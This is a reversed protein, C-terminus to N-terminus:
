RDRRQHRGSFAFAALALVLVAISVVAVPMPAGSTGLAIGLVVLAPIGVVAALEARTLKRWASGPRRQLELGGRDSAPIEERPLRESPDLPRFISLM